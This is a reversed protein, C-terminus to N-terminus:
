ITQMHKCLKVSISGQCTTVLQWLAARSSPDWMRWWRFFGELLSLELDRAADPRTWIVPIVVHGCQSHIGNICILAMTYYRFIDLDTTYYYTCVNKAYRQMDVMDVDQYMWLWESPESFPKELKLCNWVTESLKLAPLKTLHHGVSRASIVCQHHRLFVVLGQISLWTRQFRERLCRSLVKFWLYIVLIQFQLSVPLFSPASLIFVHNRWINYGWFGLSCATSRLLVHYFMTWKRSARPERCVKVQWNLRSKAICFGERQWSRHNMCPM